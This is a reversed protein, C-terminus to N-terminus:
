YIQELMEDEDALDDDSEHYDDMQRRRRQGVVGSIGYGSHISPLFSSQPGDDRLSDGANTKDGLMRMESNDLYM